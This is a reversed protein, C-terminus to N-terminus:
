LHREEIEKLEELLEEYRVILYQSALQPNKKFYETLILNQTIWSGAVKIPSDDLEHRSTFSPFSSEPKRVLHILKFDPRAKMLNEIELPSPIPSGFCM